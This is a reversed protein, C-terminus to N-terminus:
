LEQDVWDYRGSQFSMVRASPLCLQRCSRAAFRVMSASCLCSAARHANSVKRTRTIPMCELLRTRAETVLCLWVPRCPM